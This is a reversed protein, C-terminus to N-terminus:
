INHISSGPRYTTPLIEQRNEGTGHILDLLIQVSRQGMQVMPQCLTSLRPHIYDSIELGDIAILSCDEPISKGVERLARMAGIAMNDAISFLASFSVGQALAEATATYADHIHFSGTEIVLRPDFAIRCDCLAKVYGQYRLQSISKDDPHTILAAIRRHGADILMRVARYAEEEDAISVSSYESQLLTGYRNSYSCCVFPITLPALERATYDFRGGLFLIGRLRKEREM